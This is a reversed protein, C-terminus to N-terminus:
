IVDEEAVNSLIRIAILFLLYERMNLILNSLFYKLQWDIIFWSQVTLTWM